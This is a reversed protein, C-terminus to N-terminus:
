DLKTEDACLVDIPADLLIKRLPIAKKKLSTVNFYNINYDINTNTNINYNINPTTTARTSFIDMAVFIFSNLTVKTFM